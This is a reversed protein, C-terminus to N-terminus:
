RIGFQHGFKNLRLHDGNKGHPYQNLSGLNVYISWGMGAIRACSAAWGDSRPSGPTATRLGHTKPWSETM